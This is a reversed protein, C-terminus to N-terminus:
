LMVGLGGWWRATYRPAEGRWAPAPDHAPVARTLAGAQRNRKTSLAFLFRSLEHQRAARLTRQHGFNARVSTRRAESRFTRRMRSEISIV